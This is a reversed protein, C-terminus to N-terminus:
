NIESHQYGYIFYIITGVLLALGFALWTDSGYQTM